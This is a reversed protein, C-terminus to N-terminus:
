PQLKWNRYYALTNTGPLGKWGLNLSLCELKNRFGYILATMLKIILAGARGYKDMWGLRRNSPLLPTGVM